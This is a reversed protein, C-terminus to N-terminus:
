TRTSTGDDVPAGRALLGQLEAKEVDSLGVKKLLFDARAEAAEHGLRAVADALEVAAGAADPLCQQAALKAL